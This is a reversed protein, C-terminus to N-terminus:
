SPGFAAKLEEAATEITAKFEAVAQAITSELIPRLTEEVVAKIDPLAGRTAEFEGKAAEIKGRNTPGIDKPSAGTDCAALAEAFAASVTARFRDSASDAQAM